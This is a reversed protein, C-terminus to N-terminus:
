MLLDLVARVTPHNVLRSIRTGTFRQVERWDWPYTAAKANDSFTNQYEGLLLYDGSVENMRLDILQVDLAPDISNRMDHVILLELGSRNLMLTDFLIDLGSLVFIFQHTFIDSTDYTDTIPYYNKPVYRLELSNSADVLKLVKCSLKYQRTIVSFLISIFTDMGAVHSIKKIYLVRPRQPYFGSFVKTYSKSMVAEYANIQDQARDLLDKLEVLGAITQRGIVEQTKVTESLRANEELVKSVSAVLNLYSGRFRLIYEQMDAPIRSMVPRFSDLEVLSKQYPELIALDNRVIAYVLNWSVSSYDAKIKTVYPQLSLVAEESQYVAFVNIELKEKFEKLIEPTVIVNFSPEFIVVDSQFYEDNLERIDTIVAVHKSLVDYTIDKTAAKTFPDILVVVGNTPLSNM